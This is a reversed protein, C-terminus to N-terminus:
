ITNEELAVDSLNGLPMSQVQPEQQYRPLKGRNASQGRSHAEKPRQDYKGNKLDPEDQFERDEKIQILDFGHTLELEGRRTPLGTAAKHPVDRKMQFKVAREKRLLGRLMSTTQSYKIKGQAKLLSDQITKGLPHQM